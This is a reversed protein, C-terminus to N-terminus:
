AKSRGEEKMFDLYRAATKPFGKERLLAAMCVRIEATTLLDKEATLRTFVEGALWAATNGNMLEEPAEANARLISGTIKEDDFLVVNGNRKTVKM